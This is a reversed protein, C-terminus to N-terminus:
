DIWYVRTNNDSLIASKCKKADRLVKIPKQIANQTMGLKEAIQRTTQPEDTLAELIQDELTVKKPKPTYTRYHQELLELISIV